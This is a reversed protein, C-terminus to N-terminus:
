RFLSQQIYCSWIYLPQTTIRGYSLGGKGQSSRRIRRATWRQPLGCSIRAFALLGMTISVRLFCAQVFTSTFASSSYLGTIWVRWVKAVIIIEDPSFRPHTCFIIPCEVKFIIVSLYKEYIGLIVWLSPLLNRSSYSFLTPFPSLNITQFSMM